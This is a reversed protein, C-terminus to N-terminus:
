LSYQKNDNWISVINLGAKSFENKIADPNETHIPIISKPQLAKALEIIEEINAHGSTHIVNFNVGHDNRLEILYDSCFTKHPEKLYGEWQSYIINILGYPKLKNVLKQNPCRLFYVYDGPNLFIDNTIKNLKCRKVFDLYEPQAIKMLQNPHNYVFIENWEIKPLKPSFKGVLEIVWASYVDIIVKKKAKRCAKFVSVFRDINQASSIVFTMNKQQSIIDLIGKEVKEESPYEKISRSVLTGETFMIDVSKPPYKLMRNFLKKKRGTSRFDGTYFINKGDVGILFAFAEPSSHDVFFPTVVFTDAITFTDWAKFPHFNLGYTPLGSFVKTANILDLSVQGIYVPTGNDLNGMLGFHDQHPHSILLADPANDTSYSIDPNIESLPMGLDIWLVKGKESRLEICTGGIEHTGRYITIKM